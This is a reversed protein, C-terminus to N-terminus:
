LCMINDNLYIGMGELKLKKQMMNNYQKFLTQRLNKNYITEPVYIYREGDYIRESYLDPNHYSIPPRLRLEDDKKWGYLEADNIIDIKYLIEINDIIILIIDNILKNRLCFYSTIKIKKNSNKDLFDFQKKVEEKNSFLGM